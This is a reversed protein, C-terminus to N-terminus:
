LDNMIVYLMERKSFKKRVLMLSGLNIIQQQGLKGTGSM